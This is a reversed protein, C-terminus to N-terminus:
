TMNACLPRALVRYITTRSPVPELAQKHQLALGIADPGYEGLVSEKRLVNRVSLIRQEMNSPTRNWARGTKRSEFQVRDIRKGRARGVWYAATSVSVGFERSVFRLSRGSRVAQVLQRRRSELM